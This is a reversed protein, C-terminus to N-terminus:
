NQRGKPIRSLIRSHFVSRDPPTRYLAGTMLSSHSTGVVRDFVLHYGSEQDGSYKYLMFVVNASPSTVPLEDFAAFERMKDYIHDQIVAVIRTQWHHHYFGKAILQSLYRKRVNAYNFNFSPRRTLMQSNTVASYAPECSGTIDVAQLEVSLFNTVTDDDAVEAVVFDVQGFRAMKVEHAILTRMPPPGIWCHEVVDELFNVEFFRKPCLCILNEASPVGKRYASCM